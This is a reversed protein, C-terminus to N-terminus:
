ELYILSKDTHIFLKEPSYLETFESYRSILTDRNHAYATSSTTYLGAVLCFFIISIKSYSNM